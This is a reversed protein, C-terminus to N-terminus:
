FGRGKFALAITGISIAQSPAVVQDVAPSTAVVKQVGSIMLQATWWSVPLDRGLTRTNDWARRLADEMRTLTLMDADPLLWVDAALNVTLRVASSVVITDNVMRVGASQLATDVVGLLEASAIGDASNSYIAVNILPSRGQTYVVVDKVRVDAGMAVSKYRPATGGTSRGQIALIVRYRLREDDEGIMRVVDYFIALHDLDSSTAFALFTARVADNVRARLLTERYSEAQIGIVVPDTELMEVDYPPLDMGGNTLRVTHWLDAFKKNQRDVIADFDLDELVAPRPLTDLNPLDSM